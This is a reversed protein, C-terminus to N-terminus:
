ACAGGRAHSFEPQRRGGLAVEHANPSVRASLPPAVFSRTVDNSLLSIDHIVARCFNKFNYNITMAREFPTVTAERPDRFLWESRGDM